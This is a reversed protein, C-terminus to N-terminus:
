VRSTWVPRDLGGPRAAQRDLVATVRHLDLVLLAQSLHDADADRGHDQQDGEARQERGTQRQERCEDPDADARGQDRRRGPEDVDALLRELNLDGAAETM